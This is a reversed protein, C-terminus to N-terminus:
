WCPRPLPRRVIHSGPRRLQSLVDGVRSSYGAAPATASTAGLRSAAYATAHGTPRCSRARVPAGAARLHDEWVAAHRGEVAALKTYITALHPDHEASALIHYLTMSEQENRLNAQYREIASADSM